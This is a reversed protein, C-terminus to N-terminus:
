TAECLSLPRTARWGSIFHIGGKVGTGALLALGAEIIFTMADLAILRGRVSFLGEHGALWRQWLAAHPMPGRTLFLLAVQAPSPLLPAPLPPATM